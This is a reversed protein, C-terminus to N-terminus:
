KNTFIVDVGKGAGNKSLKLGSEIPISVSNYNKMMFRDLIELAYKRKSIFVGIAYQLVEIGLFYHTLGLNTMDFENMISKKFDNLMAKNNSVYILGDIYLCM